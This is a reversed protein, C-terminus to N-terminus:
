TNRSSFSRMMPSVNASDCEYETIKPIDFPNNDEQAFAFLQRSINIYKLHLQEEKELAIFTL